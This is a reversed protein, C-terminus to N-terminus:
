YFFLCFARRFSHQSRLSIITELKRNESCQKITKIAKSAAQQPRRLKKLDMWNLKNMIRGEVAKKPDCSITIFSLTLLLIWIFTKSFFMDKYKAKSFHM